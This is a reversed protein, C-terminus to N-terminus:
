SPSGDKTPRRLPLSVRVHTGEGSESEISLSGGHRSVWYEAVALGLGTGGTRTTFFPTTAQRRVEDSMGPGTDHFAIEISDVTLEARDGAASRRHLATGAGDALQDVLEVVLMRAKAVADHFVADQAPEHVHEHLALVHAEGVADLRHHVVPLLDRDEWGDGSASREM